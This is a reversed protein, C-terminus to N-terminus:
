LLDQPEQAIGFRAAEGASFSIWGRPFDGTISSAPRTTVSDPAIM